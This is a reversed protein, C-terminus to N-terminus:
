HVVMGGIIAAKGRRNASAWAHYVAFDGFESRLSPSSNWASEDTEREIRAFAAAAKAPDNKAEELTKPDNLWAVTEPSM